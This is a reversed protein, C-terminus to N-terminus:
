KKQRHIRKELLFILFGILIGTENLIIDDIDVSGCKFIYQYGEVAFPLVASIILIRYDKIKSIMNKVLFPVPVFFVVNGVYNFIPWTNSFNNKIYEIQNLIGSGAKTNITLYSNPKRIFIILFTMLYIPLFSLWFKKALTYFDVPKLVSMGIYFAAQVIFIASLWWMRCYYKSGSFNTVYHDFVFMVLVFNLFVSIFDLIRKLNEKNILTMFLVFFFILFFKFLLFETTKCSFYGGARDTSVTFCSLSYTVTFLFYRFNLNKNKM